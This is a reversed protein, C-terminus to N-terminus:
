KKTFLFFPVCVNSPVMLECLVFEADQVSFLAVHLFRELQCSTLHQQQVHVPLLPRRCSSGSSSPCNVRRSGLATKLLFPRTDVSTVVGVGIWSGATGCRELEGCDWM